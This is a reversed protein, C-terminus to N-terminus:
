ELPKSKMYFQPESESENILDDWKDLMENIAGPCLSGVPKTLRDKSAAFILTPVQISPLDKTVDYHFMGLVGRAM